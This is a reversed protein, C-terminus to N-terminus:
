FQFSLGGLFNFGEAPYNLYYQYKKNLLNNIRAYVSVGKYFNYSAGIHLDSIASMKDMEAVKKRSILDYGLNISLPTIPHVRINFSLESEPKTILLKEEDKTNWSRYIYKASLTVIEKYDYSAEAGAYVNDTNGQLFSLYHGDGIVAPVAANYYTLDNKLNQYGGFLNFWVGPYPSAKFGLMGNIQEYTDYPRQRYGTTARSDATFVEATPLEGYPCIEEVRRFDNLRKGGTASAYLLYSDSFNYGATIDPSVRVAKDFGFSFDVHAGLHLKWDDNNLEYYPNLNLAAYNKFLKDNTDVVTTNGGYFFNNLAMALYIRQEDNIAGSVNGQLQWITEKLSTDAAGNAMNHQRSYLLLSTEADFQLPATEDTFNLGAHIDGSTFKQKSWASLPLYNFNSLGFNGGINLDMKSFQHIYDVNARTRYYFARWKADEGPLTLTGDMGDMQFRANLKDKDSLRFLYNALVDLNGYNGYGARVYGPKFGSQIEMGTYPTMLGAPISTAPFFTTAYEVPKKNVTPEEVKPLVNVKSADMIDPNYEQEVVVTRNMTTDKKQTNQAQLNATTLAALTIGGAIYLIRKM